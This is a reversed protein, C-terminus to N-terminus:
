AANIAEAKLLDIYEEIYETPILRRRGVRVTRLRGLRIEEYATSRGVGIVEAASEVCHLRRAVTPPAADTVATTM